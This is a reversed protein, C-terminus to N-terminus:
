DIFKRPFPQAFSRKVALSESGNVNEVNVGFPKLFLYMQTEQCNLDQFRKSFNERLDECIKVYKEFDRELDTQTKNMFSSM